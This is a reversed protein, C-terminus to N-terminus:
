NIRTTKLHKSLGIRIIILSKESKIPERRIKLSNRRFNIESIMSNIKSMMESRNESIMSNIESTMSNIESTMSNIKSMMDFQDKVDDFQDRINDFQNKVDNRISERIDDFQNKVDDRISERIDDFQDKVDDRISERIDDFHSRIISIQKRIDDEIIEGSNDGIIERIGDLQDKIDVIIKRIDNSKYQDDDSQGERPKDTKEMKLFQKELRDIIDKDSQGEIDEEKLDSEKMFSDIIEKFINEVKEHSVGMNKSMTDILKERYEDPIKTYINKCVNICFNILEDTNNNIFELAINGISLVINKFVQKFLRGFLSKTMNSSQERYKTSESSTMKLDENQNCSLM